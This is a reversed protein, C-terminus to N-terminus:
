EMRMAEAAVRSAALRAPAIGALLAAPIMIALARAFVAPDLHLRITWGFFQRNIVDVLVLSLCLGCGCGLLTGTLGLLGSEVLVMVIVQRRLAGIARLVGIERGRQLILATLTGMLGLVAVLVAIAQLAGTIQFTQDFVTLVRERLAQNPIMDLVMTGAALAALRERVEQDSAGPELYLAFSETRPDNWLRAYLGRDMLIAGADTSYDYFVAAVPLAVRGRATGLTVSDGAGVRFHQAFSESVLVQDRDAAATLVERTGGRMLQFRGHIADVAFDLGAVVVTRVGLNVRTARYTGVAQVGPIKAAAAVFDPSIVTTSANLRHGAPEVYLDGRITQRVWLEVTERFSGVMISLAVMM